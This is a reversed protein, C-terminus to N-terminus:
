PLNRGNSFAALNMAATKEGRSAFRERIANELSETKLPLQKAAAGVLVMNVARPSGAEQALRLAPVRRSGSFAAIAAYVTEMEPYNPINVFAEEATILIGGPALMDTYRLSELPELSLIMDACGGPVLCSHVAGQAIRLHALVAGGRQAMGHVESQCVERGESVAAQAIIAAVSLVGQGGVGCLVIDYGRALEAQQGSPRTYQMDKM